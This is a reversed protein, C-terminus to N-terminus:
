QSAGQALGEPGADVIRVLEALRDLLGDILELSDPCEGSRCGLLALFAGPELGLSENVAAMLEEPVEPVSTRGYLRLLGRFIASLSGYWAELRRRLLAKRFPRPRSAAIALQRLTVLAGRLAHEVEHRLNDVKIDLRATADSGVVVEHTAQMDLYEMPFVDASTEFERTTLLLPTITHRKILRRAANGFERM